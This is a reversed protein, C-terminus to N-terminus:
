ERPMNARIEYQESRDFLQYRRLLVEQKAEIRATRQEVQHLANLALDSNRLIRTVGFGGVGLILGLLAVMSAVFIGFIKVSLKEKVDNRLDCDLCMEAFDRDVKRRKEVRREIVFKESM